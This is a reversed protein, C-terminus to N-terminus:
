GNVNKGCPLSHWYYENCGNRSESCGNKHINVLSYLLIKNSYVISHTHTHTEIIIIINNTKKKTEPFAMDAIHCLVM